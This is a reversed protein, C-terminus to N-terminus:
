RTRLWGFPHLTALIRKYRPTHSKLQRLTEAYHTNMDRSESNQSEASQTEIPAKYTHRLHLQTLKALAPLQTHMRRSFAERTEGPHRVRNLDALRDMLARYLTTPRHRPRLHPSLRRWLKVVYGLAVLALLLAGLARAAQQAWRKFDRVTQLTPNAEEPLPELDRLLDALLQQLEPDPPPPAASLVQQPAVDLIIWGAGQVYVEPWAHASAGTLLIASGGKRSAEEVAYGTGVRAPIGLTRMLYVAAHAFHVCYGTLDGFLFSATPDTSDAHQSKLSYTGQQGLWHSVSAAQAFPFAQIDKPLVEGPITRALNEYRPDEPHETYHAWTDRNWSPEGLPQTLMNRAPQHLVASHVSYVREFRNPDPNQLPELKVPAELAPPRAHPAMLAVTTHLGHRADSNGPHQALDTPANPFGTAIDADMGPRTARVMRRGNYQSFASQRFYYMGSEPSYDDHLLVIGVPIQKNNENYDDRFELDENNQSSSNGQGGGQGGGQGTGDKPNQKDKDNKNDDGKGDGRLGLGEGTNPPPPMGITSTTAFVLLLLLALFSSHYLWRLPHREALLLAFLSLTAVAGIGLLAWTPDIGIAVLPDAISFPRHISGERHSYVTQAFAAGVFTLEALNWLSWRAGLIRSTTSLSAAMLGATIAQTIRLTRAPSADLASLALPSGATTILWTLVAGFLLTATALPITRWPSRQLRPSAWPGIAAGLGACLAAVPAFNPWCFVAAAVGVVLSRLITSAGWPAPEQTAPKPTKSSM